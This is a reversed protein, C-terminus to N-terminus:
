NLGVSFIGMAGIGIQTDFGLASNNLLRGKLGVITLHTGTSSIKFPYKNHYYCFM